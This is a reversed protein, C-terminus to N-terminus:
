QKVFQAEVALKVEESVLVGGTELAANWGLDFDKRNLKGTVSLGVKQNGWPDTHVGSYEAKLQIPKTVNKITLDGNITYDDGGNSTISTSAFSIKGFTEANFFDASKLHADRDANGTNISSVEASFSLSADTLGEGNTTLQAEYQDFKGSVTSIMMHKVKFVIETHAPDVAWQTTAM